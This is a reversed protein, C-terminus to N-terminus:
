ASNWLGILPLAQPIGLDRAVQFVRASVGNSKLAPSGRAGARQGEVRDTWTACERMNVVDHSSWSM